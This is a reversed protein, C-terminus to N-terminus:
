RVGGLECLQMGFYRARLQSWGLNHNTLLWANNAQVIPGMAYLNFLCFANHIQSSFLSWCKVGADFHESLRTNLKLWATYYHSKFFWVKVHVHWTCESFTEVLSPTGIDMSWMWLYTHVVQINHRWTHSLHQRSLKNVYALAHRWM